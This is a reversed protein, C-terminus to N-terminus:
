GEAVWEARVRFGGGSKQGAELTGGTAHARERMGVIGVGAGAARTLAGRGGDVVEIWLGASGPYGITVEAVAPVAHRLVNTLSEQVIRYAAVARPVPVPRPSGRVRISVDAGARRISEVLDPIDELGPVPTRPAAEVNDVRLVAVLAALEELVEQSTKRVAELAARAEEPRRHFVHAAVGSQVNITTMSHAVSDHLDQAIRLREEAVRRRAEEERTDELYYAREELAALRERQSRVADGLFVAAGAWGIFVLHLLLGPGTGAVLGIAVVFGAVVAAAAFARRRPRHVALTYLAVFLTAFVPGGTYGRILYGALAGTVVGVVVTPARRRLALAGGAVLIIWYGLEDLPREDVGPAISGTVWVIWLTAMVAIALDTWETRDVRRLITMQGRYSEGHNMCDAQPLTGRTSGVDYGPRLQDVVRVAGPSPERSSPRTVMSSISLRM